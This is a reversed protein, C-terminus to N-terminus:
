PVLILTISRAAAQAVPTGSTGSRIRLYRVSLMDSLPVLISRGAAATITYEAGTADYLGTSTWDVGDPSTQLTINASTWAAPMMIRGLRMLGLDINGTISAGSAITATATTIQGATVAVASARLLADTLPGTVPLASARIEANTAPGSVALTGSLASWIQSLWGIIGSGGTPLAAVATVKSGPSHSIQTM